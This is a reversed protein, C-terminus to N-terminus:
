NFRALAKKGFPPRFDKDHDRTMVWITNKYKKIMKATAWDKYYYGDTFMIIVIPKVKCEKSEFYEFVVEPRTGGRGYLDVREFQKYRDFKGTSEIKADWYILEAEVKFQKLLEYVQGYFYQIDEDSISGSTDICVKVGKIYNLEDEVQGPYISKQYYMRKDPRTFSSDTSKMKIIYRRLLKRWDLESKLLEKSVEFLKGYGDGTNKSRMEVRVTADSVIKDSEQRKISQDKGEDIIDTKYGEVDIKITDYPNSITNKREEKSGRYIVESDGNYKDRSLQQELRDYINEVYDKDIEVTSCYLSQDPFKITHGKVKSTGGPSGLRFEDKLLSNVYLDCAINWLKPERNQRRAVHQLAVHALEHLIVFLLEEFEVEEIFKEDYYLTDTTVGMTGLGPSKEKRMVEYIASYFIRIDRLVLLAKALKQDTTLEVGM